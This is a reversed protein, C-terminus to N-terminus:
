LGRGQMVVVRARSFCVGPAWRTLEAPVGNWYFVACGWLVSPFLGSCVCVSCFRIFCLGLFVPISPLTVRFAMLLPGFGARRGALAGGTRREAAQVAPAWSLLGLLLSGPSSNVNYAIIYVCQGISGM